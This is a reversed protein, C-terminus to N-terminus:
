SVPCGSSASPSMSASDSGSVSGVVVESPGVVSVPESLVLGSACLGRGGASIVAIACALM